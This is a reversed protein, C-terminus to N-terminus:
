NMFLHIVTQSNSASTNIILTTSHSKTCPKQLNVAQQPQENSPLTTQTQKNLTPSPM